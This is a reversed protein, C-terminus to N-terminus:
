APAVALGLVTAARAMKTDFTALTAGVRQAIAINIADATRLTLDLRRLYTEAANLDATTTEVREAVSAVWADLTSFVANAEGTTLEQTRVRRAVVSTFEARALDSVVLTPANARLFAEARATLPDNTLLAVVVSADLYARM